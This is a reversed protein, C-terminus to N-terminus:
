APRRELLLFMKTFFLFMFNTAMLGFNLTIAARMRYDMPLFDFFNNIMYIILGVQGIVFVVIFIYDVADLAIQKLGM